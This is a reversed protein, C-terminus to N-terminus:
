SGTHYLWQLLCCTVLVRVEAMSNTPHHYFVTADKFQDGEKTLKTRDVIIFERDYGRDMKLAHSWTRITQPVLGNHRGPFFSTMSTAM